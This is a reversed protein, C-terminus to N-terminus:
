HSAPPGRRADVPLGQHQADAYQAIAILNGNGALTTEKRNLRECVDYGEGPQGLGNTARSAFLFHLDALEGDRARVATGPMM